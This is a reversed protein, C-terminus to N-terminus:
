MHMKQQISVIQSRIKQQLWASFTTIGSNRTQGGVWHWHGQMADWIGDM